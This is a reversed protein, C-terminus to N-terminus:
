GVGVLGRFILLLEFSPAFGLPVCGLVLVTLTSLMVWRLPYRDTALGAILSGLTSGVGFAIMLWSVRGPGLQFDSSISSLLSGSNTYNTSVAVAVVSTILICSSKM